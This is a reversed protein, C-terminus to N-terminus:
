KHTFRSVLEKILATKSVTKVSLKKLEAIQKKYEKIVENNVTSTKCVALEEKLARVISDMDTASQVSYMGRLVDWETAKAQIQTLESKTKVLEEDLNKKDKTITDIISNLETIKTDKIGAEQVLKTHQLLCETLADNGEKNLIKDYAKFQIIARKAGGYVDLSIITGTWGDCAYITDNDFGMLLVYHMEETSTSPNFDIECILPYGNQIFDKIKDIGQSTVPGNYRPSLYTQNIGLTTCKSWIFNGSGTTFGNNDKLIQNIESPTKGTYNGYATILCGWGGINYQPNTNYGLLQSAWKTDRQSYCALTQLKIM